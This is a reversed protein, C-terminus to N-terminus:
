AYCIQKAKAEAEVQNQFQAQAEAEAEVEAEADRTQAYVYLFAQWHAYSNIQNFSKSYKLEDLKNPETGNKESKWHLWYM